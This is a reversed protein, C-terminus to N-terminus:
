IIEKEFVEYKRYPLLDQGTLSKIRENDVSMTCFILQKFGDKISNKYVFYLMASGLGQGRYEPLLGMTKLVVAKLHPNFLDPIALFFGVPEKKSNKIVFIYHPGQIETYQKAFFSFEEESINYFSYSGEFIKSTLFYIDRVGEKANNKNLIEYSYGNNISQTYLDEYNKIKTKDITESTTINQHSTIFNNTLFLDKYYCLTFPELYFPPNDEPYSVRFSQWVSMNIPGRCEKKGAKKLFEFAKEFLM